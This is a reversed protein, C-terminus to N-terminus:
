FRHLLYSLVKLVRLIKNYVLMYKLFAAMCFYESIPAAFDRKKFQHDIFFELEFLPWQNKYM